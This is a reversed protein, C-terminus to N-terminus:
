KDVRRLIRVSQWLLLLSFVLSLLINPLWPSLLTLSGGSTMPLKFLFLSQQDLLVVESALLAASPNLCILLWGGAFLVTELGPSLQTTIGGFFTSNLVNIGVLFLVPLGFVLLIAFGYALVTAILTRSTFSSCFIGVACFNIATAVLVGTAVLVEEPAIGGFLFALSQLPLAAFLLLLLFALGSAFKGWVLSRAPLLTARVLDYTQRERESAIAGATLAPATFSVVTLELWVVVGFMLKGFVQREDVSGAPRSTATFGLYMLGAALALLGLYATLVAFARGGRM